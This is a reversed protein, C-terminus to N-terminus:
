RVNRVVQFNPGGITLWSINTNGFFVEITIFDHNRPTQCHFYNNVVVKILVGLHKDLV